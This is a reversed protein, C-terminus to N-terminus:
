EVRRTRSKRKIQQHKIAIISYIDRHAALANGEMAVVELHQERREQASQM